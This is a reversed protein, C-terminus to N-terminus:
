TGTTTWPLACNPKLNMFRGVREVVLTTAETPSDTSLGPISAPMSSKGKFTRHKSSDLPAFNSGDADSRVKFTPERFDGAGCESFEQLKFSKGVFEADLLELGTASAAQSLEFPPASVDMAAHLEVAAFSLRRSGMGRDMVAASADWTEALSPVAAASPSNRVTSAPTPSM